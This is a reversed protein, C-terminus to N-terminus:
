EASSVMKENILERLADFFGSSTIQENSLKLLLNEKYNKLDINNVLDIIKEENSILDKETLYYEGLELRNMVDNIKTIYKKSYDTQREVPITLTGNKLSLLTGHFYHTITVHFFSFVRAWEYPSLDPIFIDAYQNYQYVAVLQYDDGFIKKAIKALWDDCMLGLIPKTFDVGKHALKEKLAIMDVPINNIDLLITPDCTHHINRKHVLSSIYNYTADDRVGIYSFDNIAEKIYNLEMESMKTFDMGFASAAYSMKKCNSIDHLYYVNPSHTQYENWIADSGVIILDYKGNVFEAFSEPSDTIIKGESLPLQSLVSDFCANRIKEIREVKRIKKFDLVTKIIRKIVLLARSNTEIGPKGFIRNYLSKNYFSMLNKSSYDIVELEINPFRSKIEAVLSYCQMIAGYNYARHFTLIGIRM